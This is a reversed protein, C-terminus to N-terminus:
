KQCKDCYFSSRGNQKIKKIKQNCVKCTQGERGYVCFSNQFSGKSGDSKRYDKLTSGGAKIAKELVDKIAIVLKDCEKLTLSSAVRNPSINAYFLAECAYINGIGSIIKQNLLTSKINSNRKILLEKLFKGNFNKSLPEIGSSLYSEIDSTNMSIVMGFRRVDNYVLAFNSLHIIVHTHKKIKESQLEKEITLQGTMGLHFILSKKNTLDVIIYKAIRRVNIIKQGELDKVFSDNIDKRLKKTFVEVRDIRNNLISKQIGNKINEVEPLEPM